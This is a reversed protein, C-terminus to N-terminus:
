GGSKLYTASGPVSLGAILATKMADVDYENAGRPLAGGQGIEWIRHRHIKLLRKDFHRPLLGAANTLTIIVSDRFSVEGGGFMGDAMRKLLQEKPGPNDEPYRTEWFIIFRQRTERRLIGKIVLNQRLGLVIETRMAVAAVLEGARRDFSKAKMIDLCFSLMEDRPHGMYTPQFWTTKGEGVPTIHGRYTLDAAAAGAALYGPKVAGAWATIEDLVLLMIEEPLTLDTMAVGEGLM